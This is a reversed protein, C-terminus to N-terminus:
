GEDAFFSPRHFHWSCIGIETWRTVHIIERSSVERRGILPWIQKEVPRLKL